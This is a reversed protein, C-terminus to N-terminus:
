KYFNPIHYKEMWKRILELDVILHSLQSYVYAPDNIDGKAKKEGEHKPSVQIKKRKSPPPVMVEKNSSEHEHQFLDEEISNERELHHKRSHNMQRHRSPVITITGITRYINVRVKSSSDNGILSKGAFM